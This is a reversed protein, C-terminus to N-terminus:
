VEEQIFDHNDRREAKWREHNLKVLRANDLTVKRQSWGQRYCEVACGACSRGKSWVAALCERGVAPPHANDTCIIIAPKKM